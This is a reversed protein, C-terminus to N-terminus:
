KTIYDVTGERQVHEFGIKAKISDEKSELQRNGVRELRNHRHRRQHRFVEVVRLVWCNAWFGELSPFLVSTAQRPWDRHKKKWNYSRLCRKMPQLSRRASRIAMRALSNKTKGVDDASERSLNGM